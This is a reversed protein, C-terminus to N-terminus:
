RRGTWQPVEVNSKNKPTLDHHALMALWITCDKDRWQHTNMFNFIWKQLNDHMSIQTTHLLDPKPLDSAM